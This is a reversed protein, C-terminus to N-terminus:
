PRVVWNRLPGHLHFIKKGAIKAPGSCEKGVPVVWEIRLIM